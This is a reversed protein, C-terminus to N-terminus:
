CRGKRHMKRAPLVSCPARGPRAPGTWDDRMTRPLPLAIGSRAANPRNALESPPRHETTFLDDGEFYIEVPEQVNSGDVIADLLALTPACALM